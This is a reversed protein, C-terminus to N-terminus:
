EVERFRWKKGQSIYLYDWSLTVILVSFIKSSSGCCLTQCATALDTKRKSGRLCLNGPGIFALLASDM